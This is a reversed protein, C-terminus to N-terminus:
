FRSLRFWGFHLKGASDVFSVQAYRSGDPAIATAGTASLVTNPPPQPSYADVAEGVPVARLVQGFAGVSATAPRAPAPTVYGLLGPLAIALVIGAILRVIDRHHKRELWHM